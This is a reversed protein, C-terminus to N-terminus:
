DEDFISEIPQELEILGDFLERVALRKAMPIIRNMSGTNKFEAFLSRLEMPDIVGKQSELEKEYDLRAQKMFENKKQATYRIIESENLFEYVSNGWDELIGTKKYREFCAIVGDKMIKQKETESITHEPLQKKTKQMLAGRENQVYHKLWKYVNSITLYHTDPYEGRVGRGIVYEIEGVTLQRFNKRLDEELIATMLDIDKAQKQQGLVIFGKVLIQKLNKEISPMNMIRNEAKILAGM